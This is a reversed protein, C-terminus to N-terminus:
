GDGGQEPGHEIQRKLRRLNRGWVWRLLPAAVVGGVPGGLRWPLDLVERWILRSCDPGEPELGFSGKGSVVGRHRVVIRRGEEWGVVDMVDMTRFPGLRTAVEMRTGVGSRQGTLFRVSEADSMWEAHSGLDSLHNWVTEPAAEIVIETTVEAMRRLTRPGGSTPRGLGGGATGQTV